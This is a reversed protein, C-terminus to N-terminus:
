LYNKAEQLIKQSHKLFEEDYLDLSKDLVDEVEVVLNEPMQNLKKRLNIKSFEVTCYGFKFIDEIYVKELLEKAPMKLEEALYFMGVKIYQNVNKIGKDLAGKSWLRRASMLKRLLASFEYPSVNPQSAVMPLYNSSFEHKTEKLLKKRISGLIIKPDVLEYIGISDFYDPIYAENIRARHEEFVQEEIDTEPVHACFTLLERAYELNEKYLDEILDMALDDKEKKAVLYFTQDPTPFVLPEDDLNSLFKKLEEPYEDDGADNPFVYFDDILRRIMLNRDFKLFDKTLLFEDFVEVSFEDKEFSQISLITNFQEKSLAKLLELRKEGDLNPYSFALVDTPLKKLEAVEYDKAKLVLDFFLESM